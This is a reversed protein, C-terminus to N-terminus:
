FLSRDSVLFRQEVELLQKSRSGIRRAPVGAYIGFPELANRVLSLAGVAAGEGIVVGPLIVSGAGVIVHRGLHIPAHEVEKFADPVTPNTLSHGSYDDSSSYLSVRGSLNCFDEVTIAAHGILSAYAAVHVHHGIAFVGESASLLCFDDIRVDSALTINSAGHLSARRSVRVREGFDRFGAERLENDSLFGM